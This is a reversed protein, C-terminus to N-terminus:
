SAKNYEAFHFVFSTLFLCRALAMAPDFGHNMFIVWATGTRFDVQFGNGFTPSLFLSLELCFNFSEFACGRFFSRICGFAPFGLFCCQFCFNGSELMGDAFQDSGVAVVVRTPQGPARSAPPVVRNITIRAHAATPDFGGAFSVADRLSENPLMEYIAPRNVKGVV